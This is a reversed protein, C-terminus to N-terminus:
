FPSTSALRASLALSVALRSDFMSLRSPPSRSDGRDTGQRPGAGGSARPHDINRRGNRYASGRRRGRRLRARGQGYADLTGKPPAHARCDKMSLFVGGWEGYDTTWEYDKTTAVLLILVFVFYIMAAAGRSRQQRLRM